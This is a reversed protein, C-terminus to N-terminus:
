KIVVKRTKGSATRLINVGKQPKDIRRGNLDYWRQEGAEDELIIKDIGVIVGPILVTLEEEPTSHNRYVMYAHFAELYTKHDDGAKASASARWSNNSHLIYAGLTRAKQNSLDDFTGLFSLNGNQQERLPTSLDVLAPSSPSLDLIRTTARTSSKSGVYKLVYPEGAQLQKTQVQEFVPMNDMDIHDFRYAEYDSPLSRTFPLCITIVDSHMEFKFSLEGRIRFTTSVSSGTYNGTPTVIVRYFGAEMRGYADPIVEDEDTNRFVVEYGDPELVQDYEDIVEVSPALFQGRGTVIVNCAVKKPSISVTVTSTPGKAVGHEDVVKYYVVYSGADQSSPIDITYNMGDLSYLMMGDPAVGPTVLEQLKGNYTLGSKAEPKVEFALADVITFTASGNVSYNGGEKDTITIAATGIATNNAYGVTYESGDIEDRGDKVSVSPKQASGDYIVSSPIVTIQPATVTKPSITVTINQAAMDAHNPDGTVKYYVVYNKADKGTPITSSYTKNDLSYKMIGNAASGANILEQDKKNYTLGQKASPPTYTADGSTITFQVSGSVEYNGGPNDTVTVTATGVDTNDSYSVTYESSSVITDGDKVTVTPEKATGDYSFSTQSISIASTYLKKAGITVTISSASIDKHNSDGTVKYYVTYTKADTGTPLSSSYNSGDTSYMMTCGSTDGTGTISGATVLEQAAGNYTLSKAKPATCGLQAKNVTFTATTTTISYNGNEKDSIEVEGSGANTNNKYTVTYESEDIENDGDRVTVDPKLASGTYTMSTPSLKIAPSPLAKSSITVEVTAAESDAHNGDGEVKYYVTYTKANTGTPIDTSYTKGDLSYKMTGTTTSGASVLKQAEGNYTLGANAMPATYSADESVIKFSASGSVTYNGGDNDKIMVTATGVNTNNSYSVSYESSAIVTDGDKVTVEPKKATGDYKFSSPNLAITPNTVEKAGISVSVSSASLDKHNNGGTVKYYVTYTKADTGTPLSSSYNSGDTSYLMTCGSIDGAGTISGATVLEQAAGNYTLSKAKPVTCGLQAKNVTFTATTTTISYNGGEKDSVTVKATGVNTNESYSVSYESEDIEVESDYVTVQPELASGTYTMTTPNVKVAPVTLEKRKITFTATGNVTYTGGEIDTVTVNGTGAYFNNSYSVTYESSPVVENGYKVTVKPQQASGNYTCDEASITFGEGTSSGIEVDVSGAPENESGIDHHDNPNTSKVYYYVTYTGVAKATPITTSWSGDKGLRYNYTGAETTNDDASLLTQDSGNYTLNEIAKPAKVIWFNKTSEWGDLIRAKVTYHGAASPVTEGYSSDGVKKYTYKKEGDPCEYNNELTPSKATAGEAWGYIDVNKCWTKLYFFDDNRKWSDGLGALIDNNSTINANIGQAGGLQTFYYCNTIFNAEDDNEGNDNKNILRTFTKANSTSVSVENPRFLSNKIFNKSNNDNSKCVFGGLYSSSNTQKINGLFLCDKITLTNKVDYVFGGCDPATISASVICNEITTEGESYYIIGGIESSEYSGTLRLNKITGGTVKDFLSYHVITKVKITHGDGDFTGKFTYSVGNYHVNGISINKTLKVFKGNYDYLSEIDSVFTSWDAASNIVYPDEETGSGPLSQACAVSGWQISGTMMLIVLLIRIINQITIKM